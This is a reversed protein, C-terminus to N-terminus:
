QRNSLEINREAFAMLMNLNEITIHKGRVTLVGRRCLRGLLRSVTEVTLGLYNGIDYRTMALRFENSSFGRQGYGLSLNLMFSALRQEASKKTLMILMEQDKKIESSMMRLMQQWLAPVEGALKDLLEYPIECVMATELAQAFSPHFHTMLADLGLLDGAQKFGTVQEDGQPTIIYSKITGSRIAYLSKLNDGAKFLIQKRQFPKRREIIEDLQNLEGVNLLAPICFESITCDYCHFSITTPLFCCPIHKDDM